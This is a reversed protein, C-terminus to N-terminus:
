MQLHFHRVAFLLWKQATATTLASWVIQHFHLWSSSFDYFYAQLSGAAIAFGSFAYSVDASFLISLSRRQVSTFRKGQTHTYHSVPRIVLVLLGLSKVGHRSLQCLPICVVSSVFEQSRHTSLRTARWTISVFRSISRMWTVASLSYNKKRLMSFALINIELLIRKSKLHKIFADRQAYM